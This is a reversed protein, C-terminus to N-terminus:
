RSDVKFEVKSSRICSASIKLVTLLLHREIKFGTWGKFKVQGVNEIESSKKLKSSFRFIRDHIYTNM